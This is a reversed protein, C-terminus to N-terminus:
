ARAVDEVSKFLKSCGQLSPLILVSLKHKWFNYKGVQTDKTAYPHFLCSTNHFEERSTTCCPKVVASLM